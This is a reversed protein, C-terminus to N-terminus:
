SRAGKVTTTTLRVPISLYAPDGHENGVEVWALDEPRDVQGVLVPGEQRDEETLHLKQVLAGTRDYVFARRGGRLDSRAFVLEGAPSLNSAVLVVEQGSRGAFGSANRAAGYALGLRKQALDLEHRRPHDGRDSDPRYGLVQQFLTALENMTVPRDTAGPTTDAM